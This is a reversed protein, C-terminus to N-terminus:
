TYLTTIDSNRFDQFIKNLIEFSYYMYHDKFNHFYAAHRKMSVM